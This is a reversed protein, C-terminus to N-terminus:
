IKACAPLRRQLKQFSENLYVHKSSHCVVVFWSAVFLCGDGCDVAILLDYDHDWVPKREVKDALPLYSFKDLMGDDCVLTVRKNLQQLAVGVATLSGLADGDPSIHTVVMIDEAQALLERVGNLQEDTM